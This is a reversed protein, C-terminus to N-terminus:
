RNAFEKCIAVLRLAEGVAPTALANIEKELKQITQNGKAIEEKQLGIVTSGAMMVAGLVLLALLALGIRM